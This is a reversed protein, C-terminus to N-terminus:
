IKTCIVIRDNGSLDKKSYVNKYQNTKNIIDIVEQKQDFGIELCLIGDENLYNYSQNIIKRYFELGDKGGDLAIHPENQVDKSLTNIVETKIYPPNTVIIDFKQNINDFLNSEIFNTDINNLKANKRAVNLAEIRIDSQYMECNPLYKKLSIGIIGSGTCLDLIKYKKNNNCINIIEEVLVETDARPILVNEDVYFKLKMFEQEKTIYQLPIGKILKEIQEEYEKLKEEAVEEKNKTILQEKRLNLIKSLLIRTKLNPEEIEYEKLKEISSKLTQEINM